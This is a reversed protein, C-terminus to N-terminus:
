FLSLFPPICVSSLVSWYLPLRFSSLAPTFSFHRYDAPTHSIVITAPANPFHRYVGGRGQKVRRDRRRGRRHGAVIARRQQRHPVRVLVQEDAINEVGDGLVVHGRHLM